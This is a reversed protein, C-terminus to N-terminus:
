RRMGDSESHPTPCERRVPCDSCKPNRPLCTRQGHVVLNVHLRHRHAPSVLSQLGNHTAMRRYVAGPAIVGYRHMFRFTNSDVPFVSRNLAYLLVCRAGKIDLGPLGRLETEAAESTMLQLFKLSLQGWRRRVAALLNRILKARARQFGSPQLVQELAEQPSALAGDWDPFRSKLLQWVTRARDLDTQYTLIIYVAEDLPDQLNGLDPTGYARELAYALRKM